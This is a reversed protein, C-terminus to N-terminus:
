KLLNRVSSQIILDNELVINQTPSDPNRMRNFILEAATRGLDGSRESTYTIRLPLMREMSIKGFSVLSVDGPVSFGLEFLRFLIGYTINTSGSILSTPREEPPFSAFWDVMKEGFDGIFDGFHIFGKYLPLNNEFLAQVYGDVRDQATVLDKPGAAIAIRKHGNDVLHQVMQRMALNKDVYVTDFESRKPKRDVFVVPTGSTRVRNLLEENQAGSAIIAVADVRKDWLLEINRKEMELNKHSNLVVLLYGNEVVAEEMDSILTRNFEGMIEPVIIGVMHSKDNRLSKAHQNPRFDMEKIAREVNLKNGAKVGPAGNIVRSVTGVSVGARKAVDKITVIKM